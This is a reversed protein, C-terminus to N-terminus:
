LAYRLSTRRTHYPFCKPPDIHGTAIQSSIGTTRVSDRPSRRFKGDLHGLFGTLDAKRDMHLREFDEQQLPRLPLSLIKAPIRQMGSLPWRRNDNPLTNRRLSIRRDRFCPCALGVLLQRVAYRSASVPKQRTNPRRPTEHLVGSENEKVTRFPLSNRRERLFGFGALLNRSFSTSFTQFRSSDFARYRSHFEATEAM